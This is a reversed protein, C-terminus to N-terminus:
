ERCYSTSDYKVSYLRCYSVLQKQVAFQVTSYVPCYLMTINMKYLLYRFSGEDGM